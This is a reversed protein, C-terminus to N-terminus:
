DPDGRTIVKGSLNSKLHSVFATDEKLGAPQMALSQVLIQLYHQRLELLLTIKNATNNEAKLATQSLLQNVEEEFNNIGAYHLHMEPFRLKAIAADTLQLASEINGLHYEFPDISKNLIKEYVSDSLPLQNIVDGIYNVLFINKTKK